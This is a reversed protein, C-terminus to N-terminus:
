AGSEVERARPHARDYVEKMNTKTMQTYIQTTSIDAHGLMEQVSRLDAGNDLLHTAFSHRLTHPTIEKEIHAEKAYKKIIKWFGQRTLRTGLHNIFLADVEDSVKLLYPRMYRIYEDLWRAATKGLPIVRERSAKGMCRVFGMETNISDVDLSILETVRIGTAYLLELMAKDRVGAPVSPVPAELLKLVEDVTLVQPLRKDLKPAELQQSPDHDLVRQRIMFQYFSRISVISRSMTSSARGKGKMELLYKQIHIKNSDRLETVGNVNLFDIYQSIDRQYSELTNQALGKEAALYQIFTQLTERM